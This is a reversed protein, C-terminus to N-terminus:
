KTAPLIRIRVPSTPLWVTREQEATQKKLKEIKETTSKIAAEIKQKDAPPEPLELASKLTALYSEARELSQPNARWKIKTENQMWFTYEGPPTDAAVSLEASASDKDAQIRVEGLSTKPPLHQPRLLCAVKGGTRRTVTIPISLKSGQATQLTTEEALSVSLPATDLANVCVSLSAALRSRIANRAPSAPWVITGCNAIKEPQQQEGQPRGVVRVDGVWAEAEQDCVMTLMGDTAGPPIVIPACHVSPPLGEATVDIAGAFGDKRVALVHISETGGRPLNSGHPRATAANNTPFQRYALLEFDPNPERVTLLYSLSDPPRKGAEQDRLQIRYTGDEPATWALYPDRNRIQMAPGGITPGDDNEAIQQLKEGPAEPGGTVRYVILHPDTLQDLQASRVEIWLQQGKQAQFDHASHSKGSLSGAVQFPVTRSSSADRDSSEKEVTTSVPTNEAAVRAPQAFRYGGLPQSLVPRLLQDTELPLAPQGEGTVAAELVFPYENGGRYLFDHIVLLYEGSEPALFTLEAPWSGIARGRKLEHGDSDFLVASLMARSDLQKAYACAHLSDGASLAVRFYNRNQPSCRGAYIADPTLDVATTANTHDRDVSAVKKSTVLLPRPNSVGFRGVARVEHIGPPTDQSVRVDFAGTAIPEESLVPGATTVSTASLGAHSFVLQRLEDTHNGSAISLKFASGAQAAPQSLASVEITPIQSFANSIFLPSFISFLFQLWFREATSRIWVNIQRDVSPQPNLTFRIRM